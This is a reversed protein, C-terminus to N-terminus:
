VISYSLFVSAPKPTAEAFPAPTPSSSMNKPTCGALSFTM